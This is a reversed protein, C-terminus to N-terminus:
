ASPGGLKHREPWGPLKIRSMDRGSRPAPPHGDMFSRVSASQAVTAQPPQPFCAADPVPDEVPLPPAEEPLAAELPEVPVEAVVPDVLAGVLPLVPVVPLLVLEVELEEPPALVVTPLVEVPPELLEPAVQAVIEAALASCVVAAQRVAPLSASSAATTVSTSV